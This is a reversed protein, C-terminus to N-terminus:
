MLIGSEIILEDRFNWYPHLGEPTQKEESSLRYYNCEKVRKGGFVFIITLCFNSKKLSLAPAYLYSSCHIYQHYKDIFKVYKSYFLLAKLCQWLFNPHRNWVSTVHGLYRSCVRFTKDVKMGTWAFNIRTWTFNIHTWVFEHMNMCLKNTKMYFKHMFIWLLLILTGAQWNYCSVIKTSGPTVFSGTTCYTCCKCYFHKKNNNSFM